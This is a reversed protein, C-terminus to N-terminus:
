DRCFPSSEAEFSRSNNGPPKARLGSRTKPLRTSGPAPLNSPVAPSMLSTQGRLIRFYGTETVPLPAREPDIADIELHALPHGYIREYSESWSQCCRIEIRIGNWVLTADHPHPFGRFLACSSVM